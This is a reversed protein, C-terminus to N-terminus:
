ITEISQRDHSCPNPLNLASMLNVISVLLLKLGDLIDELKLAIEVVSEGVIEHWRGGNDDGGESSGTPDVVVRSGDSHKLTLLPLAPSCNSIAVLM